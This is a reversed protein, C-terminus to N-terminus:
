IKGKEAFLLALYWAIIAIGLNLILVLLKQSDLPVVAIAVATAFFVQAIDLSINSLTRTKSKTLKLIRM